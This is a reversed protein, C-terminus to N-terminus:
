GKPAEARPIGFREGLVVWQAIGFASRLLVQDQSEFAREVLGEVMSWEVFGLGEVRKRTILKRMLRFMPGGIPYVSPASYPHKKRQYLEETIFPKSAQRLIWKETLTDTQKDYRIKMSPPLANVYEILHHDLFPVRGEISHSMETRDSLNTLLMNPLLTKNWLYQASHLPHWRNSMLNQSRVPISEALTEQPSPRGYHHTVWPSLPLPPITLSYAFAPIGATPSVKNRGDHNTWTKFNELTKATSEDLKQFRKDENLGNSPLAHDPEQLYDQLFVDYGGFIEDSGQGSLVTKLGSDRTLKSLAHKGVFGLEFHPQEDFWVAEEFNAALEAENMQIKQFDVGLFDATNQAIVSEDFGSGKDFAIGLCRLRHLGTSGLKVEGKDLLHKAMGAIVASDIGGSLHIGVPVDAQLRVRVADLMKSRLGEILEEKTRTELVKQRQLDAPTAGLYSVENVDRTKNPYEHDWYQDHTIHDGSLCTLYYGPRIKRLGKFITREETLWGYDIISRVDWESRWGYPLLAKAESALLLRGDHVTWFLPKIGSRDRAAFFLQKTTDYLCLAFEGRLHSIFRPGYYEYLAVVIESDSGGRFEFGSRAIMDERIRHHDYLEGNVVAHITEDKNNFPQQGGPGLGNIELRCSGFGINGDPSIWSGHHDPGRHNIADLSQALQYELSGHDDHTSFGNTLKRKKSNPDAATAATSASTYGSRGALGIAVTIGCM